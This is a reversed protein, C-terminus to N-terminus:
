APSGQAPLRQLGPLRALENEIATTIRERLEAV